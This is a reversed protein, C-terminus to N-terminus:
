HRPPVLSMRASAFRVPAEDILAAASWLQIGASAGALFDSRAIPVREPPQSAMAVVPALAPIAAPPRDGPIVAALVGAAFALSAAAVLAAPWYRPAGEWGSTAAGARAARALRAALRAHFDPSSPVPPLNHVLLLGRRVISDFRVCHACAELHAQAAAQEAASLTCDSYDLHRSRFERCHM